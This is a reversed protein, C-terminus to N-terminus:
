TATLEVEELAAKRKTLDLKHLLIVVKRARASEDPSEEVELFELPAEQMCFVFALPAGGGIISRPSLVLLEGDVWKPDAYGDRATQGRGRYLHQVALEEPYRYQNHYQWSSRGTSFSVRNQRSINAKFSVKGAPVNSDGTIKTAVVHEQFTGDDAPLMERRLSLLETGHVGYNGFYIGEFPDNWHSGDINLRDYSVVLQDEGVNGSKSDESLERRKQDLENLMDLTLVASVSDETTKKSDDAKENDPYIASLPTSGDKAKDKADRVLEKLAVLLENYAGSKSQQLVSIDRLGDKSEESFEIRPHQWVIEFKNLDDGCVLEAPRPEEEMSDLGFSSTDVLEFDEPDYDGRSFLDALEGDMRTSADFAERQWEFDGFDLDSSSSSPQPPPPSSSSSLSSPPSSSSFKHLLEQLEDPVGLEDGDDGLMLDYQNEGALLSYTVAMQKYEGGVNKLYLEWLREGPEAWSSSPGLMGDLPPSSSSSSSTTTTKTTGGRKWRKRGGTSSPSSSSSSSSSSLPSYGEDKTSYYMQALDSGSYGRASLSSFRPEVLVVHGYPDLVDQHVSLDGEGEKGPGLREECRGVWWGQFRTGAEDRLGAARSFDERRLCAELEQLAQEVADPTEELVARLKDKLALAEEYEEERVRQRLLQSLHLAQSSASRCKAIYEVWEDWDPPYLSSSTTATTAATATTASAVLLVLAQQRKSSSSSRRRRRRCRRSSPPPPKLAGCQPLAVVREARAVLEARAAAM